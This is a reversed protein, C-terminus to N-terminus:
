WEPLLLTQEYLYDVWIGRIFSVMWWELKSRENPSCAEDRILLPTITIFMLKNYWMIMFMDMLRLGVTLTILVRHISTCIGDFNINAGDESARWIWMSFKRRYYANFQYCVEGLRPLTPPHGHYKYVWYKWPFTNPLLIHLNHSRPKSTSRADELYRSLRSRIGGKCNCLGILFVLWGFLGILGRTTACFLMLKMSSFYQACSGTSNM